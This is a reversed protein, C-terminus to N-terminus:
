HILRQTPTGLACCAFSGFTMIRLFPGCHHRIHCGNGGFQFWATDISFCTQLSLLLRHDLWCVYRSGPKVLGMWHKNIWLLNVFAVM